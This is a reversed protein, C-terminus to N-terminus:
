SARDNVARTNQKGQTQFLELAMQLLLYKRYACSCESTRM